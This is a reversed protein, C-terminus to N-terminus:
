DSVVGPMIPMAQAIIIVLRRTPPWYRIILGGTRIEIVIPRPFVQPPGGPIRPAVPEAPALVPPSYVVPPVNPLGPPPGMPPLSPPPPTCTSCGNIAAQVRAITELRDPDKTDWSKAEELLDKLTDLDCDERAHKFMVEQAATFTLGLADIIGLPHNGVISYLNAGGSEAVPDRNLWRQTPPDYFRHGDYYLGSRVHQEKSSFRYGNAGALSGSSSITNGFPDYRYSAALGQSSNVVYTINGNGDAHYYNHASWNGTGSSYGHSRGLLGGSCAAFRCPKNPSWIRLAQSAWGGAGELTGSLDTRRTYSVTPVNNGDREQVVRWGDYVYRVEDALQWDGIASPWDSERRLRPRGAPQLAIAAHSTNPLSRKQLLPSADSAGGLAYAFANTWRGTPQALSLGTRLRRTYTNTVTDSTWPGDETWLQGGATYGYTTTGAADVMQTVRNLADFTPSPRRLVQDGFRKIQRLPHDAPMFSESTVLCLM